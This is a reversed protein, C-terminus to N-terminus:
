TTPSRWNGGAARDARHQGSAAGPSGAGGGMAVAMLRFGDPRYGQEEAETTSLFRRMEEINRALEEDTIGRLDKQIGAM